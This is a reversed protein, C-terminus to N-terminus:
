DEALKLRRERDQKIIYRQILAQMSAPIDLFACGFRRSKAGSRLTVDFVNRIEISATVVGIEPLLIRCGTFRTGPESVTSSPLNMLGVGGLSIDSISAEIRTGDAKVFTVKLPNFISTIVRYYERRQLKLLSEPLKIRFADRGNFSTKTIQNVSFKVKVKEHTTVFIVNASDLLKRNLTENAGYDLIIEDHANDVMLITTLIFVSGHNFYASLLENKQMVANLIYKIETKSYLLYQSLDLAAASNAESLRHIEKEM